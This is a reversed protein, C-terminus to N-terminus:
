VQAAVLQEQAVRKQPLFEGVIHGDDLPELRSLVVLGARGDALVLRYRRACELCQCEEPTFVIRGSFDWDLARDEHAELELEGHLHSLRMGGILLDGEFEHM